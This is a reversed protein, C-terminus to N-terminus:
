RFLGKRRALGADILRQVSAQVEHVLGAVVEPDDADEVKTRAPVDIPEGYHITFKVPLPLPTAPIPVYPSGFAPVGDVRFAQPWSEEAGIVATPIIPARHRIAMEVHGERFPKLHYRESFPKGIGATGEPFVVLVQGQELVAHVNGRSGGIGGARIFLRGVWPLNPVFHDMVIKPTRGGRSNRVIDTGVMMADLPILGSHNVAVVAPGEVPIHELGISTVRFYVEYLFRTMAMMSALGDRSAGFADFGHGLDNMQLEDLRADQERTVFWRAARRGRPLRPLLPRHRDRSLRERARELWGM